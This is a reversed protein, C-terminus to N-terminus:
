GVAVGSNYAAGRSQSKVNRMLLLRVRGAELAALCVRSDPDPNRLHPQPNLSPSLAFRRISEADRRAHCSVPRQEVKADLMIM